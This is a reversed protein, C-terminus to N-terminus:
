NLTLSMPYNLEFESYEVDFTSYNCSPHLSEILYSLTEAQGITYNLSVESRRNQKPVNVCGTVNLQVQLTHSFGTLTDTEIVSYAYTGLDAFKDSEITVVAM